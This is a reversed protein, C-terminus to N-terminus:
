YILIAYLVYECRFWPLDWFYLLGLISIFSHYILRFVYEGFKTIRETNQADWEEGHAARGLSRGVSQFIPLLMAKIHRLLLVLILLAMLAEYSSLIGLNTDRTQFAYVLLNSVNGRSSNQLAFDHYSLLDPFHRSVNGHFSPVRVSLWSSFRSSEGLMPLLAQRWESCQLYHCADDTLKTLLLIAGPPHSNLAPIPNAMM